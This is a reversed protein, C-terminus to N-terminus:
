RLNVILLLFTRCNMSVMIGTLLCVGKGCYTHPVMDGYGISLFTISILWMAGLFNSTVDQNDHYRFGLVCKLFSCNKCYIQFCTFLDMTVKLVEPTLQFNGKKNEFLSFQKVFFYIWVIKYESPCVLNQVKFHTKQTPAPPLVSLLLIILSWTSMSITFLIHM